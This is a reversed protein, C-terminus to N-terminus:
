QKDLAVWIGGTEEKKSNVSVFCNNFDSGFQDYRIFKWVGGASELVKRDVWKAGGNAYLVNIGTKHRYTVSAPFCILDALIAKSKLQSMRPIVTRQGTPDKSDPTMPMRRGAIWETTWPWRVQDGKYTPRTGYGLRTEALYGPYTRVFPWPNGPDLDFNPNRPTNYMWQPNKEAPCYFAKGDGALRAEDLLGIATPYSVGNRNMNALYNWQHQPISGQYGILAVDKFQLSYQVMATGLQRLNSLCVTRNAQERARGMAPLLISILVAIIGIVVLLEVLTFARTFASTFASCRRRRM